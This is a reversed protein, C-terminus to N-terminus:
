KKQIYEKVQLFELEVPTDRGFMNILMKIKGKEKNIESVKGISGKFPDDIIQVLDDIKLKFQYTPEKLETKSLIEQVQTETIPNPTAGTGLFGTVNPTNKVIYWIEDSIIMQVFVYGPYMKKAITKRKGNQITIKQEKPILVNFIKNEVAFSAIRKKLNEAVSEEFGAYTHIIYWKKEQSTDTTQDNSHNNHSSQSPNNNTM